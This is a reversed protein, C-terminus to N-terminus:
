LDNIFINSIDLEEPLEKSLKNPSNSIIKIDLRCDILDKYNNIIPQIKGLFDEIIM